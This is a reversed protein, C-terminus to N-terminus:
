TITAKIDELSIVNKMVKLFMSVLNKGEKKVKIIEQLELIDTTANVSIKNMVRRIEKGYEIRFNFLGNFKILQFYPFSITIISIRNNCHRYMKYNM